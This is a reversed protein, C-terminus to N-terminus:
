ALGRLFDALERQQDETLSGELEEFLEAEDRSHAAYVAEFREYLIAADSTAARDCAVGHALRVLTGCIADHRALMLQRKL